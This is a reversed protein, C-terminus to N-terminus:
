STGVPMKMVNGEEQEKLDARKTIKYRFIGEQAMPRGGRERLDTKFGMREKRRIMAYM